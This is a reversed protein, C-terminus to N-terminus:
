SFQAKSAAAYLADSIHDKSVPRATGESPSQRAGGQMFRLSGTDDDALSECKGGSEVGKIVKMDVGSFSVAV